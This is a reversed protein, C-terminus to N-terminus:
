DPMFFKLISIYIAIQRPEQSKTRPERSKISENRVEQEKSRVEQELVAVM